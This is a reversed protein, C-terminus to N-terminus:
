NLCIKRIESIEENVKEFDIKGDFNCDDNIQYKEKIKIIRRVSANIRYKNLIGRKYLEYIKLIANEENKENFRMITIDNGAEISKALANSSGYRYKIAKMKLDDSVVLGRYHYKKRLYKTIFKRSMSCPNKDFIGRIKLHGILIADIGNEIAKEFPVMDENELTKMSLKIRPMMFHSDGKTAGHGPFHKAVAIINKSKYENIQIVGYESVKEINKGFSRDGIAKTDFRKLDLVPAFNMNFGSVKLIEGMMDAAKKIGTKGMKESIFNAAPLNLFEKPMRNVRGGEQDISIFLPIKNESNLKKLEKILCVMEDYNKFNKRYLIVGGIKYKLIIKKIRETIKNGEIGVIIMQGIKEELSLNDIKLEM